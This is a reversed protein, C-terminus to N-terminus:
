VFGGHFAFVLGVGNLMGVCSGRGSNSKRFSIPRSWHQTARTSLSLLPRGTSGSSGSYGLIEEGAPLQEAFAQPGALQLQGRTIIPLDHWYSHLAREGPSLGGYLERYFPVHARAHAFVTAAQEYQYEQLVDTPLWQSRELQELRSISERITNM